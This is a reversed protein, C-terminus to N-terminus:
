WPKQYPIGTDLQYPKPQYQMEDIKAITGDATLVNGGDNCRSQVNFNIATQGYAINNPHLQYGMEFYYCENNHMRHITHNIKQGSRIYDCVRIFQGNENVGINYDQYLQYFIPMQLIANLDITQQKEIDNFSLLLQQRYQMLEYAAFTLRDNLQMKDAMNLHQYWETTKITITPDNSFPNNNPKQQQQQQKARIRPDVNNRDILISSPLPTISYQQQHAILRPDLYGTPLKIKGILNRYSYSAPIDILQLHYKKPQHSTLSANIESAGCLQTNPEFPFQPRIYGTYFKNSFLLLRIQIVCM